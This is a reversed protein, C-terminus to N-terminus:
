GHAPTSPRRGPSTDEEEPAEAEADWLVVYSDLVTFGDDTLLDVLTQAHYPSGGLAQGVSDLTATTMGRLAEKRIYERCRDYKKATYQAAEKQREGSTALERMKSAYNM